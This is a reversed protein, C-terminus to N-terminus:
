EDTAGWCVVRNDFTAACGHGTGVAIQRLCRHEPARSAECSWSGRLEPNGMLGSAEIDGGWCYMHGTNTLACATDTGATIQVVRPSENEAVDCRGPEPISSLPVTEADSTCGFLSVLVLVRTLFWAM